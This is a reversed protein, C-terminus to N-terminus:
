ETGTGIPTVVISLDGREFRTQDANTQTQCFLGISQPNALGTGNPYSKFASVSLPQFQGAAAAPFSDIIQESIPGDDDRLECIVTQANASANAVNFSATVNLTAGGLPIGVEATLGTPEFANNLLNPTDASAGDGRSRIQVLSRGQFELANAAETAADAATASPVKAFTSEDAKNGTVANDAIKDTTVAGNNIKSTKVANNAIKKTKVANNKLAKTGVSNAKVAFATGGLAVFLAAAALVHASSFRARKVKTM